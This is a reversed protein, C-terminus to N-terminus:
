AIVEPWTPYPFRLAFMAATMVEAREVYEPAIADFTWVRLPTEDEIPQGKQFYVGYFPIRARRALEALSEYCHRDAAFPRWEDPPLFSRKLEFLAVPTPTTKEAVLIAWGDLDLMCFNLLARRQWEHFENAVSGNIAKV